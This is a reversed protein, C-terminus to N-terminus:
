ITDLPFCIGDSWVSLADNNLPMDAIAIEYLQYAANRNCKAMLGNRAHVYPIVNGTKTNETPNSQMIIPHEPGIVIVEDINLRASIKRDEHDGICHTEVVIFPADEVIISQKEYPTVLYYSDEDKRMLSAFARVMALRKIEGGDHFWRGDAMIRMKSDSINAPDWSHVPPLKREQSLKVINELSMDRLDPPPQYPM